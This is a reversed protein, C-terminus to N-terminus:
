RCNSADVPSSPINPHPFIVTCVVNHVFTAFMISLSILWIYFIVFQTHDWKDSIDLIPLNMSISLLNSTVLRQLTTPHPTIVSHGSNRNPTIFFKSLCLLLSSQVVIYKFIM